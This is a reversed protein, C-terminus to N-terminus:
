SVDERLPGEGPPGEGEHRLLLPQSGAPDLASKGKVSGSGPRDGPISPSPGKRHKAAFERPTMDGISSHPRRPNFDYRWAALKGEVEAMSRSVEVDLCELNALM